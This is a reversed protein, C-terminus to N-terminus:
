RGGGFTKALWERIANTVDAGLNRDKLSAYESVEGTVAPVLLHNVGRVTVVAVSRSRREKRALDGLRDVHLVPVEDDLEGHVFLMPARVDEIVRAPNFALFSQFWPTDAQQRFEPPINEWGKGTMVASNIQKQLEIRAVRDAPALDLRDLAHRQQELNREAGTTSPAAIAVVGAIRRERSAALLAAWAGENHGVLAIRDRDVDRRNSLWRVIALADEAQDGLTASEARGGSQGYGRKDFRVALYGADAFAGALQGLIPVGAVLGDRENASAGALLVVAALRTSPATSPATTAGGTAPWTLTAGLNFGLSPVTASEDAPNSFVVTRSTSAAIDDRMVDIRQAPISVRLLSGAEDAYVHVMTAGRPAAYALAYRRVNLTSTGIQVLEAGTALLRMSGQAGFGVFVPLDQPAAGAALRRTLGEYAGFFVNPLVVARAPVMETHAVKQGGDVGKTAATGDGFSTYLLTDGGNVTAELEYVQPTWDPRYRVEARNIVIDQTGSLRGKGIIDIGESTSLVTVEERGAVAGSVFVTYARTTSAPAQQGEVESLAGRAVTSPQAAAAPPAALLLWIAWTCYRDPM